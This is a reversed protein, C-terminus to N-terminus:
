VGDLSVVSGRLDMGVDRAVGMVQPLAERLLPSKNRNGPAPVFRAIVKCHRECFAM